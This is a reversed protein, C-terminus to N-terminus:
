REHSLQKSKRWRRKSVCTVNHSLKTAWQTEDLIAQTEASDELLIGCTTIPTGDRIEQIIHKLM